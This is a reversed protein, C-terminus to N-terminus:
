IAGTRKVVSLFTQAITTFYGNLSNHKSYEGLVNKYKKGYSYQAAQFSDHLAREEASLQSRGMSQWYGALGIRGSFRVQAMESFDIEENGVYSKLGDLLLSEAEYSPLAWIGVLSMDGKLVNIFLPLEDISTKRLIKGIKTVRPDNEVKVFPGAEYKNKLQGIRKDADTYMTRFVIYGLGKEGRFLNWNKGNKKIQPSLIRKSRYFVPGKSDLKILIAILLFLPSLFTLAAAAIVRDLINIASATFKQSKTLTSVSSFVNEDDVVMGYNHPISITYNESVVSNNVSVDKGIQTNSLIVSDMVISGKKIIVNDGIVIPGSLMVDEEIRSNKGIVLPGNSANISSQAIKSGSGLLIGKSLKKYGTTNFGKIRNSILNLNLNWYERIDGFDTWYANTEYSFFPINMQLLKPFLQYGFDYSENKPILKLIEPEIIYIGLNVLNSKAEERKPKEQFEKISGDSDSVVVGFKSPDEVKKVAITVKAGSKKHFQLMASLNIDTFGDGSLVVFTDDLFKESRKVAGATGLLKKELSYSINVDWNKGDQFYTDISEPMYFLNMRIDKINNKACLNVLYELAPKNAVPLMPKPAKDTLPLLRSGVGASLIM